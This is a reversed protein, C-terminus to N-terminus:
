AANRYQEGYIEKTHKIMQTLMEIFGKEKAKISALVNSMTDTTIIYIFVAHAQGFRYSRRIGQYLAEFSFDLSAFIQNHCNQYNLGMAGIETKTILVRFAGKAFGLLNKKKVVPKDSGTVVVADPILSKLLKEEDNHKVWVIFQEDSANVIEAAQEMRQIKTIRLAQNFTTASVSIENFLTGAATPVKIQKEIFNLPPLNYGENDFGIDSPKAFMLAWSCVWKWLKDVAHGKIRWKATEGGDHVFFTALMESRTMVGLFEAHNGLEMPDNPSPTATCCLKFPTDRFTEIILTRYAGEHNKLISSEDLVVGGFISADINQLQEYNAIQIPSFHPRNSDYSAEVVYYGFKQGEAITQEVVALPALILVPKSTHQNVQKSWELYQFTKGLGCDEFLAFRAKLLATRVSFSQFPKLLPNMHTAVFGAGVSRREKTKLFDQLTM